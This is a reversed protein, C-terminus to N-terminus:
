AACREEPKAVPSDVGATSRGHSDVCVFFLFGACVQFGVIQEEILRYAPYQKWRRAGKKLKGTLTQIGTSLQTIDLDSWLMESWRTVMDKYQTYLEFMAALQQLDAEIEVLEPYPSISLNFLKQALVLEDRQRGFDSLAKQYQATLEVGRDLSVGSAAPGAGQFDSRLKQVEGRFQDVQTQTVQTFKSKISLLSKDVAQALSVLEAWRVRISAVLEVSPSFLLLCFANLWCFFL